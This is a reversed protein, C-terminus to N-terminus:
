VPPRGQGRQWIKLFARELSSEAAMGLKEQWTKKHVFRVDFVDREKLQAQIFADSTQVDDVLGREVAKTGYWVEGTAVSAIDLQPRNESVFDKFLDHTEELDQNFKERDKETNEGFMTVTRKYEGATFLEFDIDHKKLLRHFNPVQALVGISGLVAFPAAIIRDAVCAMMYGGSAAVKDVAITLPVHADRIRRLQSAALGYGHVLGGPSEVKVLVEDGETSQNLVATIEERLNDTASARIDGDFNLVYLRKRQASDAGGDQDRKSAKRAAKAEQKDQKKTAKRKAKLTEPDAVVHEISEGIQKYKENLNRIEIHGEHLEAKNRQGISVLGTVVILFAAVLVIAQGLFLGFEYIYEM